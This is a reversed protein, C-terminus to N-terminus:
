LFSRMLADRMVVVVKHADTVTTVNYQIGTQKNQETQTTEKSTSNTKNPHISPHDHVKGLGISGM